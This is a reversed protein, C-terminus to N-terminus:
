RRRAASRSRHPSVRVVLDAGIRHGPATVFPEACLADAARVSRQGSGACSGRRIMPTRCSLVIEDPRRVDGLMADAHPNGALIARSHAVAVPGIDVYMVRADPNTQQAVEHM